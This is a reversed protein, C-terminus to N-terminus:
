SFRTIILRINSSARHSELATHPVVLVVEIVDDGATTEIAIGEFILKEVGYLVLTGNM